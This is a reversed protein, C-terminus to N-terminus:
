WRCVKWDGSPKGPELVASGSSGRLWAHPAALLLVEQRSKWASFSVLTAASTDFSAEDLAGVLREDVAVVYREPRSERPARRLLALKLIGLYEGIPSAHWLSGRLGGTGIAESYLRADFRVQGRVKSRPRLGRQDTVGTSNWVVPRGNRPESWYSGLSLVCVIM